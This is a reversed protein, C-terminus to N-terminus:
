AVDAPDYNGKKSSLEGRLADLRAREAPNHAIRRIGESGFAWGIGFVWGLVFSGLIIYTRKPSSHHDPKLAVDVVQITAGQRAEDVKAVELQRALLEFITEYYKVDRLKRVYELGQQQLGGRLLQPASGAASSGIKALEAQLTALEQEAANLQPNEGTAYLSLASIQVEKAVVQARLSAVSEIAARAQSDLQILGTKQETVKLDEEANALNDKAQRLQDEFFIRRQSAETVALNASLRKFEEVYGNALDTARQPDPDTASIRILPDKTSIEIDVIKELKDRAASMRKKHYLEMLHFRVVMADEVTRSKLLAVQLDSPNKLGLTGGGAVSALPNLASLQALLASGASAGQQPPLISTTATYRVPLVFALLAGVLTMVLVTFLIRRRYRALVIVLDLLSIEEEASSPLDEAPQDLDTEPIELGSLLKANKM